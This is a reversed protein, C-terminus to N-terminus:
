EKEFSSKNPFKRDLFDILKRKTEEYDDVRETDNFCVMDKNWYDDFNVTSKLDCYACNKYPNGGIAKHCIKLLDNYMYPCLNNESRFKSPLNHEMLENYYKDIIGKEFMKSRAEPLHYFGYKVKEVMFKEEFKLTTNLIKYFVNDSENTDEYYKYEIRNDPHVPLGCKFFRTEEIPNLFYYDDDSLVYLNSLDKINATYTSITMANFTPLLEKPIYEDHYVIRLKPHNTNLWEPIHKENQVILFVKNVWKCNQEVGRFWYKFADWERIREKGFAQRNNEKAIGEKIEKNKWYEYEEQWTKDRENLYTCVIDAM